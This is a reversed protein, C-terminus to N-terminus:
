RGGGGGIFPIGLGGGGGTRTTTQQLMVQDGERVGGLIEVSTENSLGITVPLSIQQGKYNITVTRQNGQTRVARLPVTLVNDRQEVNIAINATMGPKIAGDSNKVSLTVPYNVVGQTVTGVPGMTMVTATYPKTGLADFTVQASQGINLKAIDVEAVTVKVQLANLDALAIAATSTSASDGPNVNVASIYGDYPAVIKAKDLNRQAQELAIKDKEVAAQANKVASDNITAQTMNFNAVSSQYEITATQLNAAETTGGVDGRWAIRNYAGQAQELAIRAKELQTKAVILQNPSQANKTVADNLTIQSANLNVQATKLSLQLDTTDLQALTQGAKVVDGVQVNMQAVKGAVQFTLSTNRVTSVNGAAGVTASITGRTVTANQVRVTAAAATASMKQWGLYGSIGVVILTVITVIIMDRKM